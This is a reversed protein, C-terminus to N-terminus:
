EREELIQKKEKKLEIIQAQFSRTEKEKIKFMNEKEQEQIEFKQRM